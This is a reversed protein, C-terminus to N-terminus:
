AARRRRRAALALGGAGLALLALGSPEPVPTITLNDLAFYAPTNIYSFGSITTRQFSDFRFGLSAAGLLSTLDFETWTDLIFHDAPDAPRFDALVVTVSDLATGTAGAGSYGTIILEFFDPRGNEGYEFVFGDGDRMSHYAYTTNTIQASMALPEFGTAPLNLYTTGFGIGYTQSGGAGGGAISAYQNGFGPTTADVVRSAAWGGWYPYEYEEDIGFYNEFEAGRSVIPVSVEDGPQLGGPDGNFYAATGLPVDEFDVVYEARGSVAPALTLAALLLLRFRM